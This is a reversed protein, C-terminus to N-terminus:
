RFCWRVWGVGWSARKEENKMRWKGMVERRVRWPMSPRNRRVVAAAVVPIMRQSFPLVKPWGVKSRM